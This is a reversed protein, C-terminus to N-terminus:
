RKSFQFRKRAGPQGPKKRERSRSDRTLLGLGRLDAELEPMAKILARSLGLKVSGSQGTTGGGNVTAWIDWSTVINVAKLPSTADTRDQNVHFFQDMPRKNILIIGSGPRIRVRATAKKRRGTGWIYLVGAPLPTATRPPKIAEVPAVVAEPAPAESTQSQENVKEDAM